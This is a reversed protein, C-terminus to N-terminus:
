VITNFTVYDGGEFITCSGYLYVCHLTHEIYICIYLFLIFCIATVIKELLNPFTKYLFPFRLVFYHLILAQM